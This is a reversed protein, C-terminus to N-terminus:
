IFLNINPLIELIHYYKDAPNLSSVTTTLEIPFSSTAFSTEDLPSTQPSDKFPLLPLYAALHLFLMVCPPFLVFLSM